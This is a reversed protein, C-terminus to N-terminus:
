LPLMFIPILLTPQPSTDGRQQSECTEYPAGTNNLGPTEVVIEINVQDLYEPVGFFGAAFNNATKVMRDQSETRFVPLTGQETFNNLLHGYM